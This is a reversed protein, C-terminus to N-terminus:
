RMLKKKRAIFSQVFQLGEYAHGEAIEAKVKRDLQSIFDESSFEAM